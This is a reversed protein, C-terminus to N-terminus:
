FGSVLGLIFRNADMQMDRTYEGIMKLNRTILFNVNFTATEYNYESFKHKIRNYLLTYYFRSRDLKPSYTLEFIYGDTELNKRRDLHDLYIESDTRKLYQAAIDVKGLSLNIDPGWYTIKDNYNFFDNWGQYLIKEKGKYFFGGISLWKGLSQNMRFVYNKANNDDFKKDEGAEGKGNGDVIM